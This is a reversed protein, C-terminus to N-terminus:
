FDRAELFRCGQRSNASLRWGLGWFNGNEHLRNASVPEIVVSRYPKCHKRTRISATNVPIVRRLVGAAALMRGQGLGPHSSQNVPVWKTRIAARVM